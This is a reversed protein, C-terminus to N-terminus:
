QRYANAQESTDPAMSRCRFGPRMQLPPTRKEIVPAPCIGTIFQQLGALSRVPVVPKRELLDIILQRNTGQLEAAPIGLRHEGVKGLTIGLRNVVVVQPEGLPQKIAAPRLIVLRECTESPHVVPSQVSGPALLVVQAHSIDFEAPIVIVPRHGIEVPDIGLAFKVIVSEIILGVDGIRPFLVVPGSAPEFSQKFALSVALYRGIVQQLDLELLPIVAVHDLVAFLQDAPCRGALPGFERPDHGFRPKAQAFIGFRQIVEVSEHLGASFHAPIFIIEVSEGEVTRGAVVIGCLIQALRASGVVSQRLVGGVVQGVTVQAAPVLLLRHLREGHSRIGFEIGRNGFVRQEVISFQLVFQPASTEVFRNLYEVAIDGLIRRRGTYARGFLQQRRGIVIRVIVVFRVLDDGGIGIGVAVQQGGLLLDGIEAAQACQFLAIRLPGPTIQRLGGTDSDTGFVIRQCGEPLTFDSVAPSIVVNSQAIVLGVQLPRRFGLGFIRHSEVIRPIAVERLLIHGPRPLRENAEDFQIGGLVTVARIGAITQAVGVIRITLEVLRQLIVSLSRGCGIVSRIVGAVLPGNRETNQSTCRFFDLRQLLNDAVAPSIVEVIRSVFQAPSEYRLLAVALPGCHEFREDFGINIRGVPAGRQGLQSQSVQVQAVLFLRKGVIIHHHLGRGLGGIGLIGQLSNPINIDGFPIGATIEIIGPLATDFPVKRGHRAIRKRESGGAPDIKRALRRRRGLRQATIEFTIGLSIIRGIREITQAIAVQLRAFSGTRDFRERSQGIRSLILVRM